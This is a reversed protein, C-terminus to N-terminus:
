AVYVSTSNDAFCAAAACVSCKLHDIKRFALPDIPSKVIPNRNSTQRTPRKAGKTHQRQNARIGTGEVGDALLQRRIGDAPGSLAAQRLLAIHQGSARRWHRMAARRTGPCPYTTTPTGATQHSCKSPLFHCGSGM